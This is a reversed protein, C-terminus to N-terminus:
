LIQETSVNITTKSKGNVINSLPYKVAGLNDCSGFHIHAPQQNSPYNSLEIYVEAKGDEDKITAKGTEGSDSQANIIINVSSEMMAGEKEIMADNKQITDTSANQKCGYVLISFVVFLILLYYKKM